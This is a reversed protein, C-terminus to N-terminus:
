ASSSQASCLPGSLPLMPLSPPLRSLHTTLAGFDARIPEGAAMPVSPTRPRQLRRLSTQRGSSAHSLGVQGVHGRLGVPRTPRHWSPSAMIPILQSPSASSLGSLPHHQRTSKRMRNQLRPPTHARRTRHGVQIWRPRSGSPVQVRSVHLCSGASPRITVSLFAAPDLLIRRHNARMVHCQGPELWPFLDGVPDWAIGYEVWSRIDGLVSHRSM